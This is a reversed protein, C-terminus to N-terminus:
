WEGDMMMMMMVVVMMMMMMLRRMGREQEEEEEEAISNSAKFVRCRRWVSWVMIAAFNHHHSGALALRDRLTLIAAVCYRDCGIPTSVPLLCFGPRQPPSPKTTAINPAAQVASAKFSLMSGAM